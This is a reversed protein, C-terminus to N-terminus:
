GLPEIIEIGTRAPPQVAAHCWPCAGRDSPFKKACSACPIRPPFERVGFYVALGPPGLILVLVGWGILAKKPLAHKRAHWLYLGLALLWSVVGAIIKGVSPGSHPRGPLEWRHTEIRVGNKDFVLVQGSQDKDARRSNRGNWVVMLDNDGLGVNITRRSVMQTPIQLRARVTGDIDMRLLESGDLVCVFSRQTFIREGQETKKDKYDKLVEGRLEGARARYVERMLRAKLALHHVQGNFFLFLDNMDISSGHVRRFRDRASPPQPSLGSPSVYHDLLHTEQDYIVIYGESPLYFILLPWTPVFFYRWSTRYGFRLHFASRTEPDPLIILGSILKESLDRSPERAVLRRDFDYVLVFQGDNVYFRPTGDKEVIVKASHFSTKKSGSMFAALLAALLGAAVFLVVASAVLVVIGEALRSAALARLAKMLM